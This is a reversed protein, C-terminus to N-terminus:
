RRGNLAEDTQFHEAVRLWHLARATAEAETSYFEVAASLGGLFQLRLRAPTCEILIDHITDKASRPQEVVWITEIKM